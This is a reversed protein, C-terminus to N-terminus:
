MDLRDCLEKNCQLLQVTHGTYVMCNKALHYESIKERQDM